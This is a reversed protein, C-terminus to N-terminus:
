VPRSVVIVRFIAMHNWRHDTAKMLGFYLSKRLHADPSCAGGQPFEQMSIVHGIGTDEKQFVIRIKLMHVHAALLLHGNHIDGTQHRAHHPIFALDEGIRGFRVSCRALEHIGATQEAHAPM